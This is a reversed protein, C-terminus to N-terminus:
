GGGIARVVDVRDADALVRGAWLQSPVVQRNVAVAVAKGSLELAAILQALDAGDALAHPKGNLEIQM